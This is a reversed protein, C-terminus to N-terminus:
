CKFLQNCHQRSFIVRRREYYPVFLGISSSFASRSIRGEPDGPVLRWPGSDANWWAVGFLEGGSYFSATNIAELAMGARSWRKELLGHLM